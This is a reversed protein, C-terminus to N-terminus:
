SQLDFASIRILKALFLVILFVGFAAMMGHVDVLWDSFGASRDMTLHQLSETVAAFLFLDFAVKIFYKPHEHELAASLYVLFCLSAFLMFHGAKHTGGVVENFQDILRSELDPKVPEKKQVDSKPQQASQVPATEIVAPPEKKKMLEVVEQKAWQASDQIWVSPMMSGAIIAAANLGILFRLRRRDLRCRKFYLIGMYAWAVAFFIRFLVFSRKFQVPYAKVSDFWAEGSEGTQQLVVEVLATERQVEFENRQYVWDTTGEEYLLGHPCPVWKRNKDRQILILRASNWAYKGQVVDKTRIRGEVRILDYDTAGELLFRIDPKKGGEVVQLHFLSNTETVMGRVGAADSLGPSEIMVAGASEYRDYFGWFLLTAALLIMAPVRMKIKETLM